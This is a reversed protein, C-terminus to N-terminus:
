HWSTPSRARSASSNGCHKIPAAPPRPAPSMSRPATPRPRRRLPLRRHLLLHAPLVRSGRWWRSRRASQRGTASHFRLRCHRNRAGIRTLWAAHDNQRGMWQDLVRAFSAAVAIWKACNDARIPLAFVGAECNPSLKGTSSLNLAQMCQNPSAAPTRALIRSAPSAQLSPAFAFPFLLSFGLSPRRHDSWPLLILDAM